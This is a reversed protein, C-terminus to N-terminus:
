GVEVVEFHDPAQLLSTVGMIYTNPAVIMPLRDLFMYEVDDLFIIDFIQGHFDDYNHPFKIISGNYFEVAHDSVIPADAMKVIANRVLRSQQRNATVYAVNAGPFKKAISSTIAMLVTTKGTRRSSCIIRSPACQSMIEKQTETLEFNM